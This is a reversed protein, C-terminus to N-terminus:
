LTIMEVPAMTSVVTSQRFKWNRLGYFTRQETDSPTLSYNVSEFNPLQVFTLIQSAADLNSIYYQPITVTYNTTNVQLTVEVDGSEDASATIRKVTGRLNGYNAVTRKPFTTDDLGYRENKPPGVNQASPGLTLAAKDDISQVREVPHIESHGSIISGDPLKYKQVGAHNAETGFRLFGYVRVRRYTAPNHQDVEKLADFGDPQLTPHIECVLGDIPNKTYPKNTTQM